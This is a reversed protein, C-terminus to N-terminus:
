NFSEQMCAQQEHNCSRAVVLANFHTLLHDFLQVSHSISTINFLPKDRADPRTTAVLSLVSKFYISTFTIESIKLFFIDNLM